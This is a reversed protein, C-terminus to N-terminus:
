CRGEFHSDCSCGDPTWLPTGQADFGGPPHKLCDDLTGSGEDAQGCCPESTSSDVPRDQTSSDTFSPSGDGEETLITTKEEVVITNHDGPVSVTSTSTYSSDGCAAIMVALGIMLCTAVKM